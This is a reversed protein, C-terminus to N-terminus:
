NHQFYTQVILTFHLDGMLIHVPSLGWHLPVITTGRCPVPLQMALAQDEWAPKVSTYSWHNRNVWKAIHTLYSDPGVWVPPNWLCQEHYFNVKCLNQIPWSSQAPQSFPMALLLQPPSYPSRNLSPYNRGGLRCILGRCLAHKNLGKAHTCTYMFCLIEDVPKKKLDM